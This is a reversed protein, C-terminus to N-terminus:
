ARPGLSGYLVRDTYRGGWIASSRGPVRLARKEDMSTSDDKDVLDSYMKVQGAANKYLQSLKRESGSEAIDTLSAYRAMKERWMQLAAHNLNVVGGVTVRALRIQLEDDSYVSTTAEGTMRRLEVIPDLDGIADGSFTRFLIEDNEDVKTGLSTQSIVQLYLRSPPVSPYSANFALPNGTPTMQQQAIALVTRAPDEYFAYTPPALPPINLRYTFLGAVSAEKEIVTM